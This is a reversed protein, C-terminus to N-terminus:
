GECYTETTCDNDVCNCDLCKNGIVVEGQVNSSVLNSFNLKKNILDLAKM